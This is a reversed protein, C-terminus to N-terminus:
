LTAIFRMFANRGADDRKFVGADELVHTFVRGVEEELVTRVLERSRGKLLPAFGAAWEAHKAIQDNQSIDKGDLIYEELTDLEKHLRSPLVELGMVEILGINEKKIHHWQAHPHYLGM